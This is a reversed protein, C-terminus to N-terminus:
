KESGLKAKVQEVFKRKFADVTDRIRKRAEQDRSFMSPISDLFAVVPIWMENSLALVEAAAEKRYKGARADMRQRYDEAKIAKLDIDATNRGEKISAIYGTFTVRPTVKGTADRKIWGDRCLESMRAISIDLLAAAQTQNIKADLEM